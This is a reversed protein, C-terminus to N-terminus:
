RKVKIHFRIIRFIPEMKRVDSNLKQVYNHYIDYFAAHHMCMSIFLMLIAGNFCLFSEASITSYLVEAFYGTLTEHSWPLSFNMWFNYYNLSFTHMTVWMLRSPLYLHQTDLTGYRHFCLLISTMATLILDACYGGMGFIFYVKWMWECKENARMLFEISEANKDLDFSFLHICRIKVKECM